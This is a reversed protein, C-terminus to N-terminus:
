RETGVGERIETGTPIGMSETDATERGRRNEAGNPRGAEGGGPRAGDPNM